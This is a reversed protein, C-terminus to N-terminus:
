KKEIRELSDIAQKFLPDFTLVEKYIEIALEKDGQDEAVKGIQYIIDANTPNLRNAQNLSEMAEKFMGLNRYAIGKQLYGKYDRPSLEVAKTLNELAENYQEEAIQVLGLNYYADFFKPDIILAQKLERIAESNKDKLFYTYGLEVRASANNPESAVKQKYFDLQENVRQMDIDAWVYYTGIVFWGGASFILTLLILTISKKISFSDNKKPPMPSSDQTLNVETM